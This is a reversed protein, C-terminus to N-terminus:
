GSLLSDEQDKILDKIEAYYKKNSNNILGVQNKSETLLDDILMNNIDIEYTTCGRHILVLSDRVNRALDAFDRNKRDIIFIISTGVIAFLASAAQIITSHFWFTADSKSMIQIISSLKDEMQFEEYCYNLCDGGDREESVVPAYM